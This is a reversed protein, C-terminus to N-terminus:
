SENKKPNEETKKIPVYQWKKKPMIIEEKVGQRLLLMMIPKGYNEISKLLNGYIEMSKWLQEMSKWLKGYIEMIKGYIEM